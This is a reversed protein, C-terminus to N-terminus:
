EKKRGRNGKEKERAVGKKARMNLRESSNGLVEVERRGQEGKGHLAEGGREHERGHEDRGRSGERM